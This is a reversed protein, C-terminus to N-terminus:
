SSGSFSTPDASYEEMSSAGDFRGSTDGGGAEVGRFYADLRAREEAAKAAEREARKERVFDIPNFKGQQFASTIGPLKSGAFAGLVATIPNFGFLLAGLGARTLNSRQTNDFLSMGRDAVSTIGEGAKARLDQLYNRLTIRGTDDINMEQDYGPMMTNAMPMNPAASGLLDQQSVDLYDAIGNAM